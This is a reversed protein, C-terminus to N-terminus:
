RRLFTTPTAGKLNSSFHKLWTKSPMSLVTVRASHQLAAQPGSGPLSSKRLSRYAPYSIRGAFGRHTRQGARPHDDPGPSLAKVFKPLTSPLCGSLQTRDRYPVRSIVTYTMGEELALPRDCAGKPADIAVERTPFYLERPQYLAPILNPLNNVLTYTQVVERERGLQPIIPLLTQYSFNSRSLTSVEENRSIDWGQGTYHTL